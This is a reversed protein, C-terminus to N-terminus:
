CIEAKKQLRKASEPDHLCLIAWIHEGLGHDVYWRLTKGYLRVNDLTWDNGQVHVQPPHLPITSDATTAFQNM